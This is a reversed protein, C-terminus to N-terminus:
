LELSARARETAGGECQMAHHFAGRVRTEADMGKQILRNIPRGGGQEPTAVGHM